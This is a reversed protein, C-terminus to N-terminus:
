LCSVAKFPDNGINILKYVHTVQIRVSGLKKIASKVIKIM